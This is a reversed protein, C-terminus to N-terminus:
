QAAYGSLTGGNRIYLYAAQREADNLGDWIKQEEGTFQLTGTASLKNPANDGWAQVMCAEFFDSKRTDRVFGEVRVVEVFTEGKRVLSYNDSQLAADAKLYCQKEQESNFKPLPEEACSILVLAIVGFGATTPLRSKLTDLM